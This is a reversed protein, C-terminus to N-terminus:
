EHELTNRFLYNFLKNSNYERIFFEHGVNAIEQAQSKNEHIWDILMTLECHCQFRLYHIGPKFFKEVPDTKSDTQVVVLSNNSFSDWVSSTFTFVRPTRELFHFVVKHSGSLKTLYDKINSKNTQAVNRTDMTIARNIHSKNLQRQLLLLWPLRNLYISGLFVYLLNNTHTSCNAKVSQRPFPWILFKANTLLAHKSLISDFEYVLIYDVFEDWDEVMEQYELSWDDIILLCVKVGPHNGRLRILGDINNHSFSRKHGSLIIINPQINDIFNNIEEWETAIDSLSRVSPNGSIFNTPYDFFNIKSTKASEALHWAHPFGKGEIKRPWSAPLLSLMKVKGFDYDSSVSDLIKAFEPKPLNPLKGYFSPCVCSVPRFYFIRLMSTLNIKYNQHHCLYYGLLGGSLYTKSKEKWKIMALPLVSNGNAVSKITLHELKSRFKARIFNKM